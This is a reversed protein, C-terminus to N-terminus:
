SALVNRSVLIGDDHHGRSPRLAALEPLVRHHADGVAARVGEDGGPAARVFLRLPVIELGIGVNPGLDSFLRM